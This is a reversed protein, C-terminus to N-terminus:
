GGGSEWGSEVHTDAQAGPLSSQPQSDELSSIGKTPGALSPALSSPAQKPWKQLQTQVTM